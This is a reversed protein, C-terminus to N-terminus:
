CPGNPRATGWEAHVDVRIKTWIDNARWLLLRHLAPHHGQAAHLARQPRPVARRRRRAGVQGQQVALEDHCQQVAQVRQQEPAALSTSFASRQASQPSTSTPFAVRARRRRSHPPPPQGKTPQDESCSRARSVKPQQEAANAPLQQKIFPLHGHQPQGAHAPAVGEAAPARPHVQTHSCKSPRCAQQTQNVQPHVQLGPPM